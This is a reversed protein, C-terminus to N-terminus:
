EWDGWDETEDAAPKTDVVKKSTDIKGKPIAEVSIDDIDELEPIDDVDEVRGKNVASPAAEKDKVRSSASHLSVADDGAGEEREDQVVLWDSGTSGESVAEEDHIGAAQEPAIELDTAKGGSVSPQSAESSSGVDETREVDKGRGSAMQETPAAVDSQHEVELASSVEETEEDVDWSLEEEELSTTARKVLDARQEEAQQLKHLRYFYRTWFVDHEVVLPVMRAQLEQMFANDKTIAEIDGKKDALKFASRWATYDEEDEPEDCYTSSDRQMANVQAEYRSYKWNTTPGPTSTERVLNGKAKSNAASEEDVKQVAEKVSALLETTGRWISGGFDELTQGVTELSEQAVVAGTELTHPLDKVAHVTVGAVVETEKKLGDAFEHLDRQYDQLVEGSKSAITKVLSGFGFSWPSANPEEDKGSGDGEVSKSAITKVLSGFGFSWPSANQEEDKGSGDSTETGDENSQSPTKNTDSFLGSRLFNM